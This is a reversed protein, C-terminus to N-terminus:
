FFIETMQKYLTGFKYNQRQSHKKYLNWNLLKVAESVNIYISKRQLQIQKKKKKFNLLM